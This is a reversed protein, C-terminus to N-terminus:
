KEDRGRFCVQELKQNCFTFVAAQLIGALLAMWLPRFDHKVVDIMADGRTLGAGAYLEVFQDAWFWVALMYLVLTSALASLIFVGVVHRM